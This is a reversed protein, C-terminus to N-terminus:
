QKRVGAECRRLLLEALLVTGNEVCNEETFETHYALVARNSILARAVRSYFGSKRCKCIPQCRGEHQLREDASDRLQTELHEITARILVATEDTLVAGGSPRAESDPYNCRPLSVTDQQSSLAPSAPAAGHRGDDTESDEVDTETDSTSSLSPLSETEAGADSGESSAPSGQSAESNPTALNLQFNDTDSIPSSHSAVPQMEGGTEEIQQEATPETVAESFNDSQSIPDSEPAAPKLGACTEEIQQEGAPKTVDGSVNDSQSSPDSEPAAPKLGACTEEIQQEGAPKTVDGSVNDSQSSPDSEPAAPKLGACTEEIQQVGAPETVDGSVNDSQSSPDSEPTVPRVRSCREEIQQEGAPETVDGSVNDSQSSPNSDPAVPQVGNGIEEVQHEGTPETVSRSFNDTQCCPSSHSAVPQEEGGTEEMQQEATQEAANGSFNDTQCCPNSDSAVPRVEGGTEEMQQEGALETVNRSFNDTRCSPDSDRAVSQVGGGTEEMRQEGAPETVNGSLLASMDCQSLNLLRKQRVKRTPNKDTKTSCENEMNVEASSEPVSRRSNAAEDCTSQCQQTAQPADSGEPPEQMSSQSDRTPGAPRDKTVWGDPQERPVISHVRPLIKKIYHEKLSQWTHRPVVGDKEMAKYLKNGHVSMTKQNEIVYKAMAVQEAITYELRQKVVRLKGKEPKENRPRGSEVPKILYKKRPLLVNKSACDRIYACYLTSRPHDAYSTGSPVLRITNEVRSPQVLEGGGHEIIQRIDSREPCPVMSFYLPEGKKTFLTSSHDYSEM